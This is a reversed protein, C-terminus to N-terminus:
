ESSLSFTDHDRKGINRSLKISMDYKYKKTYSVRFRKREFVIAKNKNNCIQGTDRINM